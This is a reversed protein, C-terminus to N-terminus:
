WVIRRVTWNEPNNIDELFRGVEELSEEGRDLKLIKGEEEFSIFM